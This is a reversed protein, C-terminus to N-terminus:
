QGLLGILITSHTIKLTVRFENMVPVLLHGEGKSLTRTVNMNPYISKSRATTTHDQWPRIRSPSLSIRTKFRTIRSNSAMNSNVTSPTPRVLSVLNSVMIINNYLSEDRNKNQTSTSDSESDKQVPSLLLKLDM